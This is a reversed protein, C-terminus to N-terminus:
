VGAGLFVKGLRSKVDMGTCRVISGKFQATCGTLRDQPIPPISWALSPGTLNYSVAANLAMRIVYVHADWPDAIIGWYGDGWPRKVMYDILVWHGWTAGGILAILPVTSLNFLSASDVAAQTVGNTGVDAAAWQGIGCSNLLNAIDTGSTYDTAPNWGAVIGQVKAVMGPETAMANAITTVKNMRTHVMM